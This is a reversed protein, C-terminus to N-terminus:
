DLRQDGAGGHPLKKSRWAEMALSPKRSWGAALGEGGAAPFRQLAGHKGFCELFGRRIACLGGAPPGTGAWVTGERDELLEFVPSTVEPYRLLPGDKWSALGSRTGIWLRGDRALLLKMIYTSPLNEGAPPQWPVFRDGDFRVIGLETGLWLYGDPTQAITTVISKLAGDRITWATHAYQNIDLSPGLASAYPCCALLIIFACAKVQTRASARQKGEASEMQARNDTGICHASSGAQAVNRSAAGFRTSSQGVKPPIGRRGTPTLIPPYVEFGIMLDFHSNM